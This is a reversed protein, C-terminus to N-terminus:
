PLAMVDGWFEWLLVATILLVFLFLLVRESDEEAM